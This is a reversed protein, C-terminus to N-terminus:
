IDFARQVGNGDPSARRQRLWILENGCSITAPGSTMGDVATSVGSRAAGNDFAAIGGFEHVYIEFTTTTTVDVTATVTDSGGKANFAAFIWYRAGNDFPGVVPVYRNGQTDSVMVGSLNDYGIAVVIADQATVSGLALTATKQGNASTANVQVVSIAASGCNASAETGADSADGGTEFAADIVAADRPPAADVGAESAEAGDGAADPARGNALGDVDTTLSCGGAIALAAALGRLHLM